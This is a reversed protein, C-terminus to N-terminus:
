RTATREKIWEAVEARDEVWEQPDIGFTDDPEALVVVAFAYGGDTPQDIGQDEIFTEASIRSDFPGFTTFGEGDQECDHKIIKYTM